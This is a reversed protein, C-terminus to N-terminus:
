LSLSSNKNITSDRIGNFTLGAPPTAPLELRSPQPPGDLPRGAVTARGNPAVGVVDSRDVKKWLDATAELKQARRFREPIKRARYLKRWM